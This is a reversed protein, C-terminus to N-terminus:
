DNKVMGLAKLINIRTPDTTHKGTTPDLVGVQKGGVIFEQYDCWYSCVDRFRQYNTQAKNVYNQIFRAQVKIDKGKFGTWDKMAQSLYEAFSAPVLFGRTPHLEDWPFVREKGNPRMPFNKPEATSLLIMVAESIPVSTKGEHILGNVVLSESNTPAKISFNDIAKVEPELIEVKSCPIVCVNQIHTNEGNEENEGNEAHARVIYIDSERKHSDSEWEHSQTEWEHSQTEREHSQLEGSHFDHSENKKSHSEREHSLTGSAPRLQALCIDSLSIHTAILVLYRAIGLILSNFLLLTCGNTETTVPGVVTKTNDLHVVKETDKLVIGVTAEWDMYGLRRLENVARYFASKSIEWEECFKSVNDIVFNKSPPRKIKKIALLYGTSTLLKDKYWQKVEDKTLPHFPENIKEGQKRTVM